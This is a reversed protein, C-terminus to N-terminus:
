KFSAGLRSRHLSDFEFCISEGNRRIMKKIFLVTSHVGANELLTTKRNASMFFPNSM